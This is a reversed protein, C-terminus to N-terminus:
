YIGGKLLIKTKLLYRENFPNLRKLGKLSLPFLTGWKEM